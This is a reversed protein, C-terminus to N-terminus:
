KSIVIEPVMEEFSKQCENNVPFNGEVPIVQFVVTHYM